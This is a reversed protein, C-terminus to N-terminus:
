TKKSEAIIYNKKEIRSKGVFDELNFKEIKKKTSM